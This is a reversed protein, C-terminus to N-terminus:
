VNKISKSVLWDIVEQVKENEMKVGDPRIVVGLFGFERIKWIYKELKVFLDNEAIKRLIKEVIDDHEEETETGVMVDYSIDM